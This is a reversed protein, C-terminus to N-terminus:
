SPRIARRPLAIGTYGAIGHGPGSTSLPSHVISSAYHGHWSLHADDSAPWDQPQEMSKVTRGGLLFRDPARFSGLGYPMLADHSIDHM